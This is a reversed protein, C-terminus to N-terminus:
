ELKYTTTPCTLYVISRKLIIISDQAYGLLANCKHCLLGRVEGNEHNHDVALNRWSGKKCIACVSNQKELLADYQELTLGYKALKNIRSQWQAKPKNKQYYEKRYKGIEQKNNIYWEQAKKLREVKNRQYSESNFLRRCIKCHYDWGDKSTKINFFEKIPKTEGCRRCLKDM